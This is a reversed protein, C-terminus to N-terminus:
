GIMSIVGFTVSVGAIDTWFARFLILAWTENRSKLTQWLLAVIM